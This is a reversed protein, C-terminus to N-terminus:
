LSRWQQLPSGPLGARAAYHVHSPHVVYRCASWSVTEEGKLAEPNINDLNKIIWNLRKVVRRAVSKDLRKLERTVADLIRLRYM